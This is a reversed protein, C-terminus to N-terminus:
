QDGFCLSFCSWLTRPYDSRHHNIIDINDIHHVSVAVGAAQIDQASATAASASPMPDATSTMITSTSTAPEFNSGLPKTITLPPYKPKKFRGLEKFFLKM